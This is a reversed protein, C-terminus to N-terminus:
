TSIQWRAQGRRRFEATGIAAVVMSNESLILPVFGFHEELAENLMNTFGKDDVEGTLIVRDPTQMAPTLRLKMLISDKVSRWYEDETAYQSKSDSGLTFNEIHGIDPEFTGIALRMRAHTSTVATKSYHIGLTYTWPFEHNELKCQPDDRWHKCLGLGHGALASGTEYLIPEFFGAPIIYKFGVYECIDQIDDIYLAALHTAGIVADKVVIQLESEIKDRLDKLVSALAGVEASAPLNVKKRAERELQRPTDLFQEEINRYPPRISSCAM